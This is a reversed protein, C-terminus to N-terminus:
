KLCKIVESVFMLGIGFGALVGSAFALWYYM